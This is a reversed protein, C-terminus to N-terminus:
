VGPREFPRLREFARAARLLLPESLPRGILPLGVPLGDVFGCPVTIAAYGSFNVPFTFPIHGFPPVVPRGDIITPVSGARPATVPMTPCALLDYKDFVDELAAILRSRVALAEVYQAATFSAGRKFVEQAYPNIQIAGNLEAKRAAYSETDSVLRFAELTEPLAIPPEEVIAGQQALGFAAKRAAERVPSEVPAYGLNPTWAIRVTEIGRECESVYDPVPARLSTVDRSDRGAMVQLLMAADRVDRTIPGIQVLHSWGGLQPVRGRSPKMGFVGCYSCPIRISGGVDTGISVSALGAAVAAASGGSTAGASHESNWPNRVKTCCTTGLIIAGARQIREMVIDTIDRRYSAAPSIGKAAIPIAHLPGPRRQTELERAQALASEPEVSEFVNFQPGLREIRELMYRVLEVPSIERQLVLERIRWGPLSELGKFTM